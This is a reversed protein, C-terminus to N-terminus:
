AGAAWAEPAHIARPAWQIPFFTEDDGIGAGGVGGTADADLPVASEKPDVWQVVMDPTVSTVGVIKAARAAFGADSSSAFAVGIQPLSNTLTGGAAQVAAALGGPLANGTGQIVYSSAGGAAVSSASISGAGSSRPAVAAEDVCNALGLAGVLTFSTVTLFRM